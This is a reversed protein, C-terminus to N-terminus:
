GNTVEMIRRGIWEAVQSCVLVFEDDMLDRKCQNAVSCTWRLNELSNDGGRARPIIHDLQMDDFDLPRGTLGCKGDQSLHLLRLDDGSVAGRISTHIVLAKWRWPDSHRLGALYEQRKQSGNKKWAKRQSALFRERKAPDKRASAMWAAKRKRNHELNKRYHERQYANECPRCRWRVKFRKKPEGCKSCTPTMNLYGKGWGNVLKRFWQM